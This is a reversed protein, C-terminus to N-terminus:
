FGVVARAQAYLRRSAAEVSDTDLVYIQHRDAEATVQDVVDRVKERTALSITAAALKPKALLLDRGTITTFEDNQAAALEWLRAKLHYLSSTPNDRRVVGFHAVYHGNFFGFRSAIARDRPKWERSFFPNLDQATTTVHIQVKRAWRGTAREDEEADSAHQENITTTALSACMMRGQEVLDQLSAGRAARFSGMIFGDAPFRAETNQHLALTVAEEASALMEAFHKAKKGYLARLVEPRIVREVAVGGDPTCAAIAFTFREGSGIMPEVFIPAWRGKIRLQDQLAALADPLSELHPVDESM